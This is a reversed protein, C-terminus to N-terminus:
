NLKRSLLKAEKKPSALELDVTYVVSIRSRDRADVSSRIIEFSVVEDPRLGLKGEIRNKLDAPTSGPNMKINSIRIM